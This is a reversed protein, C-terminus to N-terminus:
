GGFVRGGHGVRGTFDSSFRNEDTLEVGTAQGMPTAVEHPSVNLDMTAEYTLLASIERVLERFKKPSTNIDRLKTLKHDVLPHSSVFVKSM